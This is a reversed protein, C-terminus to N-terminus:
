PLAADANTPEAVFRLRPPRGARGELRLSIDLRIRGRGEAVCQGPGDLPQWTGPDVRWWIRARPAADRRGRALDRLWLTWGQRRDSPAVTVRVRQEGPSAPPNLESPMQWVAIETGGPRVGAVPEPELGRGFVVRLWDKADGKM